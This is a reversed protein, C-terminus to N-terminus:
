EGLRGNDNEGKDDKKERDTVEEDDLSGNNANETDPNEDSDKPKKDKPDDINHSATLKFADEMQEEDPMINGNEENTQPNM